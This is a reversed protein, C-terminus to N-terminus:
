DTVPLLAAKPAAVSGEATDRVVFGQAEIATRLVDADAWRKDARAQQRARVLALVADPVAHVEPLWADLGLGLVQDLWALTAKQVDGPLGSKLLDWALALARPTNPDDNLEALM